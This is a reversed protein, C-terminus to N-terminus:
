KGLVLAAAARAHKSTPKDWGSLTKFYAPTWNTLGPRPGIMEFGVGISELVEEWISSDRKVSGAGMLKGRYESNNKEKPFWERQRADECFVFISKGGFGGTMRELEKIAQYIQFTSVAILKKERPKWVAWGTYTGPDIGILYECGTWSYPVNALAKPSSGRWNNTQQTSM